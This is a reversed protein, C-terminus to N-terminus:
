ADAEWDLLGHLAVGGVKDALAGLVRRAQWRHVRVRRLGLV